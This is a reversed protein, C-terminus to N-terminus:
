ARFNEEDAMRYLRDRIGWVIAEEYVSPREMLGAEDADMMFSMAVSCLVADPPSLDVLFSSIIQDLDFDWAAEVTPTPGEEVEYRYEHWATRHEDIGYIESAPRQQLAQRVKRAIIDLRLCACDLVVRRLGEEASAV